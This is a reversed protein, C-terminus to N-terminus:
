RTIEDVNQQPKITKVWSRKFADRKAYEERQAQKEGLAREIGIEAINDEALLDRGMRKEAQRFNFADDNRTIASTFEILNQQYYNNEDYFASNQFSRNHPTTGASMDNHKGLIDTKQQCSSKEAERERKYLKQVAVAYAHHQEEKGADFLRNKFKVEPSFNAKYHYPVDRTLIDKKLFSNDLRIASDTLEYNRGLKVDLYVEPVKQNGRHSFKM